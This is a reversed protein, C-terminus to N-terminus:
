IVLGIDGSEIYRCNFEPHESAFRDCVAMMGYKESAAHGLIVLCGRVGFQGMDRFYEGTRWESIEGTIVIEGDGNLVADQNWDGCAGLLLSIKDSFMRTNGILRVYPAAMAHKIRDALELPSVPSSLTMKKQGDYDGKLGVLDIFAQNVFDPNSRHLHDHYRMIVAGCDEVAAKKLETVTNSVYNDFHDYYTPEHTVIADAGFAKAEKLVEPTATLCFAINKVERDPNGYKITDVTPDVKLASYSKLTNLLEIATM